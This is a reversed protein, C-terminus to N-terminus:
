YRDKFVFITGQKFLERNLEIVYIYIGSSVRVGGRNEGSWLAQGGAETLEAVLEGTITYLKVRANPPLPKFRM